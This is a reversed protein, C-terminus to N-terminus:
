NNNQSLVNLLSIHGIIRSHTYFNPTCLKKEEITEEGGGEIGEGRLAARIMSTCLFLFFDLQSILAPQVM